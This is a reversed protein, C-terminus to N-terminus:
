AAAGRDLADSLALVASAPPTWTFVGAGPPGTMGRLFAYHVGGLHRAPDYGRLRWRLYRHLAVQYLLAQLGYHRREMEARLAGPRYHRAALPEDPGALWNTKYDVIAFRPGPRRVVLDLFGTLYGRVGSRLGPDALRGAYGALPDDPPLHARLTAALAGLTVTGEVADGGALPLEFELEDLRDARSLGRLAFGALPTDLATALGDAVRDIDLAISRVRLTEALRTRLEARLDRAAFDSAELVEHVITGVTAGVPMAGLPLEPAVPPAGTAEDSEAEPGSPEDRVGAAEPESDVTAEHAGATIDSYSTRRWRRDLTRRLEAVALAGVAERPPSWPAPPGPDADEVAIAGDPATARLADLRQRVTGDGPTDGGLAPVEGDPQRSFLLRGLSSQGATYSGAWWM